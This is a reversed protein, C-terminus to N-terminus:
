PIHCGAHIGHACCVDTVRQFKLAQELDEENYIIPNLSLSELDSLSMNILSLPDYIYVTFSKPWIIKGSQERDFCEIEAEGTTGNYQWFHMFETFDTPVKELPIKYKCHVRPYTLEVWPQNLIPYIRFTNM